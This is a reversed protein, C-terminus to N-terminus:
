QLTIIWPLFSWWSKGAKFERGQKIFWRHLSLLRDSHLSPHGIEIGLIDDIIAFVYSPTYLMIAPVDERFVERLLELSHEREKPDHTERIQELLADARFDRYQSLNQADLRLSPERKPDEV